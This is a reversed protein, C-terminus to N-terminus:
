IRYLVTYFNIKQKFLEDKDNRVFRILLYCFLNKRLSWFPRLFEYKSNIDSFLLLPLTSILYNSFGTFTFQVM